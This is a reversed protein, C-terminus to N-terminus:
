GIRGRAGRLLLLFFPSGLLATFIGVPIEAPIAVTRALSDALLLLLAGLLMSLPVVQRQDAGVWMRVLHPAVLGIFGIMGCWAVAFGALLAVLVIIQSR